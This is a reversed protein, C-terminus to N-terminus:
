IGCSDIGKMGCRGNFFRTWTALRLAYNLVQCACGLRPAACGQPLSGRMSQIRSRRSKRAAFSWAHEPHVLSLKGSHDLPTSELEVLALQTPEFGAATMESKLTMLWM